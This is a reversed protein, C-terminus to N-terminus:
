FDVVIEDEAGGEQELLEQVQKETADVLDIDIEPEAETEVNAAVPAEVKVEKPEDAVPEPVSVSVSAPAAKIPVPEEIVEEENVEERDRADAILDRLLSGKWSEYSSAALPVYKRFLREAKLALEFNDFLNPYQEPDALSNAAKLNVTKLNDKWLSVVQSVRSPLYTRAMFAAEPIRSTDCLLDICKDLDNLLFYCMFSINNRSQAQAQEALERVKASDGFSTYLLL